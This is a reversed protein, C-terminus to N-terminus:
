STSRGAVVRSMLLSPYSRVRHHATESPVPRRQGLPQVRADCRSSCAVGCREDAPACAPSARSPRAPSDPWVLLARGTGHPHGAIADPGFTRERGPPHAAEAAPRRSGEPLRPANRRGCGASARASSSSGRSRCGMVTRPRSGGSTSASRRIASTPTRRMPCSGAAPATEEAALPM